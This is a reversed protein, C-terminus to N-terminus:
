KSGQGAAADFLMANGARDAPVREMRGADLLPSESAEGWRRILRELADARARLDDFRSTLYRRARVLEDRTICWFVGKGSTGVPYGSLVLDRLLYFIERPSVRHGEAALDEILRAQTRANAEGRCENKLRRWLARHAETWEETRLAPKPGFAVPEASWTECPM